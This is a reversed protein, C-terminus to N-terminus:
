GQKRNVAAESHLPLEQIDLRARAVRVAQESIDCGLYPFGFRRAVVLTSGSGCFPDFVLRGPPVTTLIIRRLVEEPIQNVYDSKEPSVNKVLDLEWWDYLDCGTSGNEILEMVRKDSMNKYPQKILSLNPECNFWCIMRWQHRLNSNYCWAVCKQPPGLVECVDRIMHEPYHIVVAQYGKLARWLEAYETRTKADDYDPYGFDINYPPDTVVICKDRSPLVNRFDGFLVESM